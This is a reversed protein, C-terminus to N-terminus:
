ASLIKKLFSKRHYKCSGHQLIAQRHQKTGYGANNEFGYEPHKAALKQMFEDRYVKAIISAAAIAYSKGDGKVIAESRFPDNAFPDHQGDVLVTVHQMDINHNTILQKLALRMAKFTAQLINISDIEAHNVVGIGYKFDATLQHSISQRIKPGLKKSDNVKQPLLAVNDLLFAAAVVPGALPGRGVEDIGIITNNRWKEQTELM